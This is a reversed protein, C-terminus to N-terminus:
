HNFTTRPVAAAFVGEINALQHCLSFAAIVFGGYFPFGHGILHGIHDLFQCDGIANESMFAHEVGKAMDTHAM